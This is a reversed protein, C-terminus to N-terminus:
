QNNVGNLIPAKAGKKGLYAYHLIKVEKECYPCLVPKKAADNGKTFKGENNRNKAM